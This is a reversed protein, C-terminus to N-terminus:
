VAGFEDRLTALIRAPRDPAFVDITGVLAGTRSVRWVDREEFVPDVVHLGVTQLNDIGVDVFVKEVDRVAIVRFILDVEAKGRVADTVDVPGQYANGNYWLNEEQEALDLDWVIRDDLLVQLRYTDAPLGGAAYERRYWFSLEYRPSLPDVRVRQSGSAISGKSVASRSAFIALRGQGYMARNDSNPAPAGDQQTGYAIVGDIEGRAALERSVRATARV